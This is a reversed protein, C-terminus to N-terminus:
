MFITSSVPFVFLFVTGSAPEESKLDYDAYDRENDRDCDPLQASVNICRGLFGKM